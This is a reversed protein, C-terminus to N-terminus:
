VSLVMNQRVKGYGPTQGAEGATEGEEGTAEEGGVHGGVVLTEFLPGLDVTRRMM